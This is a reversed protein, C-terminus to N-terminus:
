QPSTQLSKVPTIRDALEEIKRQYTESLKFTPPTFLNDVEPNKRKVKLVNVEPEIDELKAKKVKRKKKFMDEDVHQNFGKVLAENLKKWVEPNVDQESEVTMSVGGITYTFSAM